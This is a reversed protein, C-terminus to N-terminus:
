IPSKRGLVSADDEELLDNLTVMEAATNKRSHIMEYALKEKDALSGKGEEFVSNLLNLDLSADWESLM